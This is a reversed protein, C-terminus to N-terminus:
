QRAVQLNGARVRFRLGANNLAGVDGTSMAIKCAECEEVTASCMFRAIPQFQVEALKVSVNAKKGKTSM